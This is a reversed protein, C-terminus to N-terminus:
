SETERLFVPRPLVNLSHFVMSSLGKKRSLLWGVESASSGLSVWLVRGYFSSM